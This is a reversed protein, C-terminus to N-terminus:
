VCFELLAGNINARKRSSLDVTLNHSRESFDFHLSIMRGKM